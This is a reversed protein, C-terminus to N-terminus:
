ESNKPWFINFSKSPPKIPKVKEEKKILKTESSSSKSTTETARKMTNSFKRTKNMPRSSERTSFERFTESRVKM